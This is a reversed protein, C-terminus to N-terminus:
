WLHRCINAKSIHKNYKSHLAENQLLHSANLMKHTCNKSKHSFNQFFYTVNKFHLCGYLVAFACDVWFHFHQWWKSVRMNNWFQNEKKQWVNFFIRHLIKTVSCNQRVRVKLQLKQGHLLIPISVRQKGVYKLYIKKHESSSIFDYVRLVASPYM